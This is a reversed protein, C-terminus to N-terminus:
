TPACLVTIQRKSLQSIAFGGGYTRQGTLVIEIDSPAARQPHRSALEIADSDTHDTM